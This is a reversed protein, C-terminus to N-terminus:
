RRLSKSLAHKIRKFFQERQKKRRQLEEKRQQQKKIEDNLLTTRRERLFPNIVHHTLFNRIIAATSAGFGVNKYVGIEHGQDCYVHAASERAFSMTCQTIATGCIGCVCDTISIDSTAIDVVYYLRVNRYIQTEITSDPSNGQFFRICDYILWLVLLIVLILPVSVPQVLASLLTKIASWLGLILTNIRQPSVIAGVIASIAAITLAALWWTCSFPKRSEPM